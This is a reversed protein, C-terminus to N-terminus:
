NLLDSEEIGDGGNVAAELDFSTQQQQQQRLNKLGQMWGCIGRVFFNGLEEVEEQTVDLLVEDGGTLAHEDVFNELFDKLRLVKVTM